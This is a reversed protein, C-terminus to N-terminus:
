NMQICVQEDLVFIWTECSFFAFIRISVFFMPANFVSSTGVVLEGFGYHSERPSYDCVSSCLWQYCVNPASQGTLFTFYKNLSSMTMGGTAQM